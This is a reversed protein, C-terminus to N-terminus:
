RAVHAHRHERPRYEFQIADIRQEALLRECGALVAGEMGETDIKLLGVRDIGHEACSSM